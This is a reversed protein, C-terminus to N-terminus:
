SRSSRGWVLTKEKKSLGKEVCMSRLPSRSNPGHHPHSQYSLTSEVEDQKEFYWDEIDEEHKELLSECQTKLQTVQAYMKNEWQLWIKWGNDCKGLLRNKMDKKMKVEASPKDWLEHPIGIDVQLVNANLPPNFLSYSLQQM